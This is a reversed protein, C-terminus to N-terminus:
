RPSNLGLQTIWGLLERAGDAAGLVPAVDKGFRQCLDVSILGGPDLGPFPRWSWKMDLDLM